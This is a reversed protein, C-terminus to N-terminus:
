RKGSYGFVLAFPNKTKGESLAKAGTISRNIQGSPLGGLDGMLNVASKRIADDMQGQRAQTAFKYTEGIM